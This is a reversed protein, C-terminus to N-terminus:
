QINRPFDQNRREWYQQHAALHSGVVCVSTGDVTFSIAIGGKNAMIGMAGVAEYGIGINSINKKIGERCYGIDIEGSFGVVGIGHHLGSEHLEEIFTNM